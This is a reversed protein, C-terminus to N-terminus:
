SGLKVSMLGSLRVLGESDYRVETSHRLFYSLNTSMRVVVESQNQWNVPAGNEAALGELLLALDWLYAGGLTLPTLPGGQKIAARRHVLIDEYDINTRPLKVSIFSNPIGPQLELDPLATSILANREQVAMVKKYTYMIVHGNYKTPVIRAVLPDETLDTPLTACPGPTLRVPGPSSGAELHSTLGSM